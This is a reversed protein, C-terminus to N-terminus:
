SLATKMVWLVNFKPHHSSTCSEKMLMGRANRTATYMAMFHVFLVYMVAVM